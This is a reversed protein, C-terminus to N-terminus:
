FVTFDEKDLIYAFNLTVGKILQHPSLAGSGIHNLPMKPTTIASLDVSAAAIGISCKQGYNFTISQVQQQLYEEDSNRFVRQNEHINM